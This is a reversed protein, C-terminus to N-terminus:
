FAYQYGAIIMSNMDMQVGHVNQVIPSELEFALRHGRLTASQGVLNLGIGLNVFDGGYNKPNATQVPAAILLDQGDIDSVTKATLRFSGSVSPKFRYSAWASIQYSDGLTYDEDNEGLHVTSMFQSGWGYVGSKGTYTLGPELDYTGSGLQMGYPLRLEMKTNMPTLVTDSNDIDGTPISIGINAHVQHTGDKHLRYLGALKTDGIGSSQTTFTGLRNTGMMGQYTIHDMEKEVYNLMAMLTLDDSPAYMLGLMHMKSTMKTPVVRVNPPGFPNSLTSVIQDPSISDNGDLNGGMDMGMYRYSVMWEGDKHLHDGMVGIPAHSDPMIAKPGSSPDGQGHAFSLNSTLTIVSALLSLKIFNQNEVYIRRM